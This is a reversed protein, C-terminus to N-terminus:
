ALRCGGPADFTVLRNVIAVSTRLRNANIDAALSGDRAAAVLSPGIGTKVIIESLCGGSVVYIVDDHGSTVLLYGDVMVVHSPLRMKAIVTTTVGALTYAEGIQPAKGRPWVARVFGGAYCNLAPTSCNVITNATLQQYRELGRTEDIVIHPSFVYVQASASSAVGWLALTTFVSKAFMM